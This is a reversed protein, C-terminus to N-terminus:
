FDRKSYIRLSLWYSFLLLAISLIVIGGATIVLNGAVFGMVINIVSTHLAFRWMIVDHVILLTFMFIIPIYTGYYKGKEYGFKFLFPFSFVSAFAYILFGIAFLAMYQSFYLGARGFFVIGVSWLFNVVLLMATGVALGVLMLIFSLAFRGLVVDARRIPMVLYLYNLEGKEEASFTSQSFGQFWFVTLPIIFLPSFLSAFLSMLPIIFIGSWNYKMARWDLAVMKAIMTM